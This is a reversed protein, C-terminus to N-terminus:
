GAAPGEEPSVLQANCLGPFHGLQGDTRFCSRESEFSEHDDPRIMNTLPVESRPRLIPGAVSTQSGTNVSFISAATAQVAADTLAGIHWELQHIAGRFQMDGRNAWNGLVIYGAALAHLRDTEPNRLDIEFQEDM